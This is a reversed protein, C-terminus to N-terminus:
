EKKSSSKKTTYSRIYFNLFLVFLTAIMPVALKLIFLPYECNVMIGTTNHILQLVFQLMQFRTLYRKWWLYPQIAPGFSALLYYTYMVVHVITNLLLSFTAHGDPAYNAVLWSIILVTIHHFMHLFTIQNPKGRVVYLITDVLDFIKLLFYMYSARAVRMPDVDYSYSCPQCIFNYGNLWGASLFEYTVYTNTVIQIVNIVQMFTTLKMPQRQRMWRPGSYLVFWTWIVTVITIVLPNGLMPWDRSREDGAEYFIENWKSISTDMVSIVLRSVLVIFFVYVYYIIHLFDFPVFAHVATIKDQLKCPRFLM